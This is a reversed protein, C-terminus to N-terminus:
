RIKFKEKILSTGCFPCYAFKSLIKCDCKPCSENSWDLEDEDYDSLNEKNEEIIDEIQSREYGTSLEYAKKFNYNEMLNYNVESLESLCCEYDICTKLLYAKSNNPDLELVKSIVMNAFTYDPESMISADDIENEAKELYSNILENM